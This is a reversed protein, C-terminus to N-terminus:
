FLQTESSDKAIDRITLSIPPTPRPLNSVEIQKPNLVSLHWYGWNTQKSGVSYSFNLRYELMKDFWIKFIKTGQDLQSNDVVVRVKGDFYNAEQHPTPKAPETTDCAMFFLGVLFTFTLTFLTKM